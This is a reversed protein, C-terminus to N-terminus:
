GFWHRVHGTDLHVFNQARYEGVGGLSMRRSVKALYSISKEHSTIDIAFGKIHLSNKAVKKSKRRLLENTQRTRYGSLVYFPSRHNTKTKLEYLIDLIYPNINKVSGTRFDRMFYNFKRLAIKNYRGNVKFTEKFVEGTHTNVLHIHKTGRGGKFKNSLYVNHARHLMTPSDIYNQNVPVDLMSIKKTAPIFKEKKKGIFNSIINNANIEKGYLSQVLLLSSLKLFQRKNM